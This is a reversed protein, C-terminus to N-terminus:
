CAAADAETYKCATSPGSSGTSPESGDTVGEFEQCIVEVGTACTNTITATDGLNSNIGALIDGTTATVGDITVHREPMDDCNGCSRYLKGFDQVLFGSISVAGAGNHQIVKDEAGKAGGGIVHTTGSASQTKISLADECVAVWWVNKITCAGACHVGEIQDAAIIVNSLTGGEEVIFVADSDGGEEQGTCSVGRGFAKMGGDFNGTVTMPASLQSTGSSAPFGSAATAGGTVGPTAAPTTPTGAPTSAAVANVRANGANPFGWAQRADRPVMFADTSVALTAFAVALSRISYQM